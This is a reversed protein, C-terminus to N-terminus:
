PKMMSDRHLIRFCPKTFHESSDTFNKFFLTREGWTLGRMCFFFGNCRLPKKVRIQTAFSKDKRTKRGFVFLDSGKEQQSLTRIIRRQTQRHNHICNKAVTQRIYGEQVNQVGRYIETGWCLSKYGLYYFHVGLIALLSQSM